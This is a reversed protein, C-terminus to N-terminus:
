ALFINLSCYTASKPVDTTYYTQTGAAHIYAQSRSPPSCVPLKIRDTMCPKGFMVTNLKEWVRVTYVGQLYHLYATNMLGSVTSDETMNAQSKSCAVNQLPEVVINTTKQLFHVEARSSKPLAKAILVENQFTHSMCSYVHNEPTKKMRLITQESQTFRAGWQSYIFLSTKKSHVSQGTRSRELSFARKEKCKGLGWVSRLQQVCYLM